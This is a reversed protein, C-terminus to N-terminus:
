ISTTEDEITLYQPYPSDRESRCECYSENIIKIVYYLLKLMSSQNASFHCYYLLQAAIPLTNEAYLKLLYIQYSLSQDKMIHITQFILVVYMFPPGLWHFLCVNKSYTTKLNCPICM